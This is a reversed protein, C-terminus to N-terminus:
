KAAFLLAILAALGTVARFANIVVPQYAKKSWSVLVVGIGGSANLFHFWFGHADIVRTSVLIYALVIVIAGYWGFLEYFTQKKM